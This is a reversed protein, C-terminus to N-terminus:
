TDSRHGLLDVCQTWLRYAGIFPMLIEIELPVWWKIMMQFLPSSLTSLYVPYCAFIQFLEIGLFHLCCPPLFYFIHPPFCYWCSYIFLDSSIVPTLLFILYSKPHLCLMLVSCYIGRARATNQGRQSFVRCNIRVERCNEILRCAKSQGLLWLLNFQERSGCTFAVWYFCGLFRNHFRNQSVRLFSLPVWM